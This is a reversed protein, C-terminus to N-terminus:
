PRKVLKSCAWASKNQVVIPRSTSINSTTSRQNLHIELMIEFFTCFVILDVREFSANKGVLM